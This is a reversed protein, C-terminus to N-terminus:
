QDNIEKLKKNIKREIKSEAEGSSNITGTIYQKEADEDNAFMSRDVKSIKKKKISKMLGPHNTQVAFQGMRTAKEIVLDLKEKVNM